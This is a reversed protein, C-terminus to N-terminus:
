GSSGTPSHAWGGSSSKNTTLQATECISNIKNL